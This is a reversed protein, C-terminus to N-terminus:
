LCVYVIPHLHHRQRMHPSAKFIVTRCNPIVGSRNKTSVDVVDVVGVVDVDVSVVVEAVLVDDVVSVDVVVGVVVEAVDDVVSVDVVVGVVVEAVLVEDVVSVDVVVGVVVDAVDVDEVVVPVGIVVSRHEATFM